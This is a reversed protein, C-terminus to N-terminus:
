WGRTQNVAHLLTDIADQVDVGAATPAAGVLNALGDLLEDREQTEIFGSRLNVTDFAEAFEAGLQELRELRADEAMDETLAALIPTHVPEVRGPGERVRAVLHGRARGLRALPQGHEARGM